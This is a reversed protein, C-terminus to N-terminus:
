EAESPIEKKAIGIFRLWFLLLFDSPSPNSGGAGKRACRNELGAGEVM